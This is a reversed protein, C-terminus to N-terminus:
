SMVLAKVLSWTFAAESHQVSLNQLVVGAAGLILFTWTDPSVGTSGPKLCWCVRAPGFLSHVVNRAGSMRCSSM